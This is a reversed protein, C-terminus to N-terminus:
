LKNRAIMDAASIHRTQRFGDHRQDADTDRRRASSSTNAMLHHILEFVSTSACSHLRHTEGYVRVVSGRSRQVLTGTPGQISWICAGFGDVIITNEIRRIRM